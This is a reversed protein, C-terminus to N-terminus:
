RDRAACDRRVKIKKHINYISYVNIYCSLATFPWCSVPAPEIGYILQECLSFGHSWFVMDFRFMKGNSAKLM